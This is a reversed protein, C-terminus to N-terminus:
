NCIGPYLGLCKDMFLGFRVTDFQALSELLDLASSGIASKIGQHNITNSSASQMHFGKEFAQLIVTVNAITQADRARSLHSLIKQVLARGLPHSPYAVGSQARNLERGYQTLQMSLNNEQKHLQHSPAPARVINAVLAWVHAIDKRNQQLAVNKNHCCVDYPDGLLRYANALRLDISMSSSYDRMEVYDLQNRPQMNSLPGVASTTRRMHADHHVPLTRLHSMFTAYSAYPDSISNSQRASIMDSTSHTRKLGEFFQSPNRFSVLVNGAFFAAGCLRPCPIRHDEPHLPPKSYSSSSLNSNSNLRAMSPTRSFGFNQTPPIPIGNVQGTAVPEARLIVGGKHPDIPVASVPMLESTAVRLSDVDSQEDSLVKTLSSALLRLCHDLCPQNRSTLTESATSLILKHLQMHQTSITTGQIYGFSPPAGIPYASPFTISMVAVKDHIPETVRVIVTREVYSAKEVQVNPISSDIMAIEQRLNAAANGSKISSGSLSPTSISGNSRSLNMMPSSSIGVDYISDVSQGVTQLSSATSQPATVDQISARQLKDVDVDWAQLHFDKSWTIIQYTNDRKTVMDRFDIEKIVDNHGPFGHLCAKIDTTIPKGSFENQNTLSPVAWLYASFESRQPATVIYGGFPAFKARCPANSGTIMSAPSKSSQINWIKVTRDLGTSVIEDSKTHSWDLMLIKSTHAQINSIAMSLTRADWIRIEGDQSSAFLHQNLRNWKVQWPDISTITHTPKKAERTDWMMIKGDTSCSLLQNEHYHNWSLDFVPRQHSRLYCDVQLRDDAVNWIAIDENYTTALNSAFDKHPNWLVAATDYNAQTMYYSRRQKVLPQEIHAIVVGKRGAFAVLSQSADIAMVAGANPVVVDFTKRASADLADCM